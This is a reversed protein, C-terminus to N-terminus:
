KVLTIKRLDVKVGAELRLIYLGTPVDEANWQAVHNGRASYGDFLSAVMRGSIDYVELSAKGSMDLGYEIQTSSNFPNPYASSISFHAPPKEFEETVSISESVTFDAFMTDRNAIEDRFEVTLYANVHYEGAELEGWRYSAQYETMVDNAAEPSILVLEAILTNDDINFQQDSWEYGDTPCSVWIVTSVDDGKVPDAPDVEIQFIDEFAPLEPALVIFVVTFLTLFRNM